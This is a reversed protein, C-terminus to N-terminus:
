SQVHMNDVAQNTILIIIYVKVMLCVIIIMEIIIICAHMCMCQHTTGMCVHLTM